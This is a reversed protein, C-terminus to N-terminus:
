RFLDDPADRRLKFLQEGAKPVLLIGEHERGQWADIKIAAYDRWNLGMRECTDRSVQSALTLTIRPTEIGGTVTSAGRVHSAHALVAWPYNRYKEWQQRFYAAGHYGIQDLTKGHVYSLETIHPAYLILESGDAMVPELKYMGKAGTWLDDYMSPIIALARTYPRDVWTIHLGASQRAARAWADEPPGVHLGALGGEHVVMAVCLRRRPIARVARDIIARVPTNFTGIIAYSTLLAGLWHTINIIQAGSIGPFFYKNGGSFGAVEHPYVPGCVLLVDYQLIARNITIPLSLQVLGGSLEQLEDADLTDLTVLADPDDWHHNFLGVHRYRAAREAASVGVLRLLAEGSLKPHTGLAVIFDIRRAHGALIRTLLRFFVPVPATRTTDPIIVLVRKDRLDGSCLSRRLLDEIAEESIPTNEDELSHVM